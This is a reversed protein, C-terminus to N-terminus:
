FLDAIEILLKAQLPDFFEIKRMVGQIVLFHQIIRGDIHDPDIRGIFKMRRM